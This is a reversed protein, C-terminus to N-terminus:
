RPAPPPRRDSDSSSAGKPEIYIVSPTGGGWGGYGPYGGWGYGPYGWGYGPYGYWPGGRWPGDYYYDRSSNGWWNAQVGAAGLVMVGAVLGAMAFKVRDNM